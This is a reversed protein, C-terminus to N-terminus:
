THLHCKHPQMCTAFCQTSCLASRVQRVLGKSVVPMIHQQQITKFLELRKVYLSRVGLFCSVVSIFYLVAAYYYYGSYIEFALELYQM